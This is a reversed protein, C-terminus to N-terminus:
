LRERPVLSERPDQPVSMVRLSVFIELLRCCSLGCSNYINM